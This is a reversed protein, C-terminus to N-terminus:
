PPPFHHSTRGATGLSPLRHLRVARPRRSRLSRTRPGPERLLGSPGQRAPVLSDPAPRGREVATMPLWTAGCFGPLHHRSGRLSRGVLAEARPPSLFAASEPVARSEGPLLCLFRRPFTGPIWPLKSNWLVPSAWSLPHPLDWGFVLPPVSATRAGVAAGTRLKVSCWTRLLLEPAGPVPRCRM